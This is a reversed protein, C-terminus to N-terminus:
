VRYVQLQEYWSLLYRTAKRFRLLHQPVVWVLLGGVQLWPRTHVLWQYELRGDEEDHDYPPNLYLLNFGGRATLLSRYSDHLIRTLPEPSASRGALLQQVATRATAARGEHLEVGYPELGLREALTVLAEGEGACPDLIRGAQPASIHTLLLDTVVAPLPFY